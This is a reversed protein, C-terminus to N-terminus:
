NVLRVFVLRPGSGAWSCSDTQWGRFCSPHRTWTHTNTCALDSWDHRVWQSETSQLGGPEETWAMRWALICLPNGHGGGPSRGLRLVSAVDRIDGASAPLNKVVLAEQSTRDKEFLDILVLFVQPFPCTKNTLLLSACWKWTLDKSAMVHSFWIVEQRMGLLTGAQWGSNWLSSIHFLVM